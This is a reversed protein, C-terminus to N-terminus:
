TMRIGSRGGLLLDFGFFREHESMKRTLAYKM